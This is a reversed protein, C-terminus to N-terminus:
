RFLWKALYPVSTLTCTWKSPSGDDASTVNELGISASAATALGSATKPIRNMLIKKCVSLGVLGGVFGVPFPSMTALNGEHKCLRRDIQNIDNM